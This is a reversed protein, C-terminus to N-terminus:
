GVQPQDIRQHLRIGLGNSQSRAGAVDNAVRLDDIGKIFRQRATAQHNAGARAGARQRPRHEIGAFAAQFADGFALMRRHRQHKAALANAQGVVFQLLTVVM